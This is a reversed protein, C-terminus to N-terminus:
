LSWISLGNCIVQEYKSLSHHTLPLDNVLHPPCWATFGPTSHQTQPLDNVLLSPCWATFGPTSHQTQPLDNVPLSPCWPTFGPPNPKHYIMSLSPHVGLPSVQFAPNTTSWQCPPISVLPHFGSYFPQSQPLDNVLFPPCWPTFGPTSPCPKHYIMSLSLHVDLPSVQLLLAPNTTSWQCPLISM